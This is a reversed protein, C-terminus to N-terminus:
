PITYPVYLHERPKRAKPLGKAERYKSRYYYGTAQLRAIVRRMKRLNANAEELEEQLKPVSCSAIQETPTVLQLNFRLLLRNILNKM